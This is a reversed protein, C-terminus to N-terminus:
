HRADHGSQKAAHDAGDYEGDGRIKERQFHAAPYHTHNGGGKGRALHQSEGGTEIEVLWQSQCAGKRAMMAMPTGAPMM